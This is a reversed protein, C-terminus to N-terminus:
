GAPPPWRSRRHRGRRARPPRRVRVRRRLRPHRGVGGADRHPGPGAVRRHRLPRRARRARALPDRRLRRRQRLRVPRLAGAARRDAPLRGAPARQGRRGRGPRRGRRRQGPDRRNTMLAAWSVPRDIARAIDAFEEVFLDPGWTSELTGAGKTGLVGALARIEDLDCVRSPVPKGYAGLHSETRSTSFGSPAPTSRRASWSSWAARGRRRHRGARHRRRRARLVAAPHPRAARRRQHRPAAARRRRPVRPLDRLDLPHRGRARRPAHGGRERAGAPHHAPARAPDPRHRVRLQRGGRHHRRAVVVAHAGPGVPGPRRLPHPPRHLRAGRGPRHLRRGRRGGARRPRPGVAAIRGDALVVDAVVAPAGTGDVM